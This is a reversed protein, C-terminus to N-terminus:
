LEEAPWRDGMLLREENQRRRHTRLAEIVVAPVRLVRVRGAV